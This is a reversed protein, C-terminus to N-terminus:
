RTGPCGRCRMGPLLGTVMTLCKRRSSSRVGASCFSTRSSAASSFFFGSERRGRSPGYLTATRNSLVDVRVRKENSAPMACSPPCAITTSAPAVWIPLPSVRSSVARMNERKVFATTHRVYPCSRTSVSAACESTGTTLASVSVNWGQWTRASRCVMRSFLPLVAPRFIVYKPSPALLMACESISPPTVAPICTVM